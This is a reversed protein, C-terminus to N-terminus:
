ETIKRSPNYENRMFKSFQELKDTNILDVQQDLLFKWVTPIDPIAWLRVKKGQQHTQNIFRQLGQLELSDVQGQGNWNLFRRYHDSVVPMKKAPILQALEEPRGDLGALSFKQQLIYNVPRNGSIFVKVPRANQGAAAGALMDQYKQLQKELVQYTDLPDSKIDIMLYFFDQYGPYVSGQHQQVRQHLPALYLKELSRDPDPQSPLDHYVYLEGGILYIDAEVSVFGNKLADLLPRDHAYDNHAHAQAVPNQALASFAMLYSILVILWKM